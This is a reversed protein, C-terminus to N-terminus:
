VLREVLERAIAAHAFDREQAAPQPVNLFSVILLPGSRGTPDIAFALDNSQDNASTGTKDGSIWDRPLGARLRQLGTRTDIMWGRLRDRSAPTLLDEFLFRTMLVLMAAPTTTDWAEGEVNRNLEPEWRDLRTTLDGLERLRATFGSPGDLTRLLLNAATNDSVTVAAECLAALSMGTSVQGETVPAYDLLDAETYTLIRDLQDEGADVRRLVLAALIWKFTSCMAHREDARHSFGEGTGLNIAAVGVRGGTADEIDVIPDTLAAEPVEEDVAEGPQCGAIM